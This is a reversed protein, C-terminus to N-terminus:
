SSQVFLSVLDGKYLFLVVSCFSFTTLLSIFLLSFFFYECVSLVGVTSHHDEGHLFVRHMRIAALKAVVKEFSDDVSCYISPAIARLNARRVIQIYEDVPLTLTALNEAAVKIDKISIVAMIDHERSRIGLGTIGSHVMKAFTDVAKTDCDVVIPHRSYKGLQKITKHRIEEPL